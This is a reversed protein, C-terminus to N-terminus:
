VLFYPSVVTNKAIDGRSIVLDVKSLLFKSLPDDWSVVCLFLLKKNLIEEIFIVLDATEKPNPWM